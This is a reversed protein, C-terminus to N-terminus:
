QKVLKYVASRKGDHLMLQYIGAKIKQISIIGNSIKGAKIIKGQLDYISFKAQHFKAPVNIFTDAANPYIVENSNKERLGTPNYVTMYQVAETQLGDNDTAIARLLYSGQEPFSYTTSFDPGNVKAILQNYAYFAVEEVNGDDTVSVHLQTPADQDASEPSTWNVFPFNSKKAVSITKMSSRYRGKRDYAIAELHIDGSIKVPWSYEYPPSISSAIFRGNQFFDVKAVGLDDTVNVKLDITDLQQYTDKALQWQVSPRENVQYAAGKDATLAGYIAAGLALNRHVTYEAVIPCYRNEFWREHAPFKSIGPYVRDQAYDVDWPGNYGDNDGRHPGFPIIGDVMPEIDDYWSNLNLVQRPHREGLGTVWTMNLPNGGLMYDATHIVADLYKQEGSLYHAMLSEMVMPTTAQGVLIPFYENGAQRWGRMQYAELNYDDAHQKSREILTAQLEADLGSNNTPITAYTWIAWNQESFTDGNYTSSVKEDAAFQNQYEAEGTLKLLAAAAYARINALKKTGYRNLVIAEDGPLTNNKAWHYADIAEQRWKAISDGASVNNGLIGQSKMQQYVWAAQAALAAYRYSIAPEEGYVIWDDRPDEWSPKGDGKGNEDLDAAVRSGAIGGTPGKARQWFHLLWMAEDVIDPVGNGSEKINLESDQFKQPFLEYLTLLYAPVVYHSPYGDWDGADQYWGWAANIDFSEDIGAYVGAKDGNEGPADMFRYSTYNLKNFGPTVGPKHDAPWDWIENASSHDFGARQYHVGRATYYFVERYVDADIDFPFSSGIGEVVIKYTGPTSFASFDCQYVEAAAFNGDPTEGNQGTDRNDAAARFQLQGSFVQVDNSVDVLYFTNGVYNQLELGGKDGLWQSVYAYKKAEPLYGVQNVHVAESRHNKEDFIFDFSEANDALGSLFLTYTKGKRMKQPLFLYIWHEQIYDNQCASGDWQCDRSFDTGKSKRSITTPSIGDSFNADDTSFLSYAKELSAQNIDLPFNFTIDQEDKENYGHHRIYGDDFHLMLIQDTLPLVEVLDSAHSSNAFCVMLFLFVAKNMIKPM